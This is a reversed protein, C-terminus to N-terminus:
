AAKRDMKARLEKSTPNLYIALMKLNKHGTVKSLTIVDGMLPALRTTAEHRADHFRFGVGAKKRALQWLNSFYAASLPFCRENGAGQPLLRILQEARSSLAVRRSEGNKTMPLFVECESYRVHQWTMNLIEGRRMATEVALCFGIAVYHSAHTPPTDVEWGLAACVKKVEEDTIRAERHPPEAPRDVMHVPNVPFPAKWKKMAHTFCGSLMGLERRVTGNSVAKYDKSGRLRCDRIVEIDASGFAAIPKDFVAFRDLLTNLMQTESRAGRKRPTVERIYKAIISRVPTAHTIVLGIAGENAAIRAEVAFAWQEAEERTDFTKTLQAGMKRVIARHADGRQQITAM